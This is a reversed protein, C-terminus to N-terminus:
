KFRISNVLEYFAAEREKSVPVDMMVLFRSGNHEVTLELTKDKTGEVAARTIYGVEGDVDITREYEMGKMEEELSIDSPTDYLLDVNLCSETADEEPGEAYQMTITPGGFGAQSNSWEFYGDPVDYEILDTVSPGSYEEPNSEVTENVCGCFAVILSLM